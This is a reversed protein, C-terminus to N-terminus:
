VRRECHLIMGVRLYMLSKFEDMFVDNNLDYTHFLLKNLNHFITMYQIANKIGTSTVVDIYSGYLFGTQARLRDM